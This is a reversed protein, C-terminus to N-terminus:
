VESWFDGMLHRRNGLPMYTALGVIRSYNLLDKTVQATLDTCRLRVLRARFALGYILSLGFSLVSHRDLLRFVLTWFHSVNRQVDCVEDLCSGLAPYLLHGGHNSGHGIVSGIGLRGRLLDKGRLRVLVVRCGSSSFLHGRGDLEGRFFLSSEELDPAGELEAPLRLAHDKHTLSHAGKFSQAAVRIGQQIVTVRSEVRDVLQHL